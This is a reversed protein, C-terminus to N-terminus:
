KNKNKFKHNQITSKSHNNVMMMMRIMNVIAKATTKNSNKRVMRPSKQKPSLKPSQVHRVIARQQDPKSKQNNIVTRKSKTSKSSKQNIMNSYNKMVNRRGSKNNYNGKRNLKIFIRSGNKELSTSYEVHKKYLKRLERQIIKQM